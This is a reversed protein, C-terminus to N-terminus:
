QKGPVYDRISDHVYLAMQIAYEFSIQVIIPNSYLRICQNMLFKAGSIAFSHFNIGHLLNPFWLLANYRLPWNYYRRTNTISSTRM